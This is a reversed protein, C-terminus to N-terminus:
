LINTSTAFKKAMIFFLGLKRLKRELFYNCHILQRNIFHKENYVLIKLVKNIKALDLMM